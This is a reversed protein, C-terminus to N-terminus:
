GAELEVVIAGPCPVEYAHLTAVDAAAGCLTLRSVDTVGRIGRLVALIDVRRVTAGFRWQGDAPGGSVPHLFAELADVVTARLAPWESVPESSKLVAVVDIKKFHASTVTIRSQLQIPSHAQVFALVDDLVAPATRLDPDDSKALVFVELHRRPVALESEFHEIVKAACVRASAQEALAQIDDLTVARGNARVRAAGSLALDALSEGNVGGRAAVPNTVKVIGPIGASFVGLSGASVNGAAGATTSYSQVVINHVGAPPIAGHVGDGFTITGSRGELTYCRTTPTAGVFSEALYWPEAKPLNAVQPQLKGTLAAPEKIVLAIDDQAGVNRADITEGSQLEHVGAYPLLFTQNPLGNSSGLIVDTHTTLNFSGATNLYVGALAVPSGYAGSVRVWCASQSFCIAQMMNDPVTFRITASRGLKATRDDVTLPRWEHAVSDLWECSRAPGEQAHENDIQFYITIRRGVWQNAVDSCRFGLYMMSPTDPLPLYPYPKGELPALRDLQFGNHRRMWEPHATYVYNIQLSAIFPGKGRSASQYRSLFTAKTNQLLYNIVPQKYADPLDKDPIGEIAPVLPQFSYGDAGDYANLMARIWYGETGAVTQRGVKPCVFSVTGSRILGQTTDQLRYSDAGEGDIMSVWERTAEDWFQWDVQAKAASPPDAIEFRLVIMGGPHSFVRDNQVYFTDHTTPSKGFPYGGNTLDLLSNNAAARQPLAGNGHVTATITHIKPLVDMESGFWQSQAPRVLLWYGPVDTHVDKETALTQPTYGAHKFIEANLDDVSMAAAAKDKPLPTITVSLGRGDPTEVPPSIELPTMAGDYWREFYESGLHSGTLDIQIKTVAPDYKLLVPDGIMMWHTLPKEYGASGNGFLAPPDGGGSWAAMCDIYRDFTPAVWLAASLTASVVCLEDYTKFRFSQTASDLIATGSPVIQPLQGNALTFTLPAFAPLASRPSVCLFQYLALQWHLPLANEIDALYAALHSFLELLILGPDRAIDEAQPQPVKGTVPWSDPLQWQPCYIKALRIADDFFDQAVRSDIQVTSM